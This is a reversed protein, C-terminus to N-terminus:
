TGLTWTGNSGTWGPDQSRRYEDSNLYAQRRAEAEARREAKIEDRIQEVWEIQKGFPKGLM